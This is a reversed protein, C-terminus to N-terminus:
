GSARGGAGMPGQTAPARATLFGEPAVLTVPRGEEAALALRALFEDVFPAPVGADLWRDRASRGAPPTRAFARAVADADELVVGHLRDEVTVSEFGAGRYLAGLREATFARDDADLIDRLGGEWVRGIAPDATRLDLAGGLSESCSVTGGGRLVRREEAVARRRDELYVLVSRHVSADFSGELFPLGTADAVVRRIPAEADPGSRLARPDIDVAVVTAGRDVAAHAVAGAGSGVDLVRDLSALPAVIRRVVDGLEGAVRGADGRGALEEHELWALFAGLAV